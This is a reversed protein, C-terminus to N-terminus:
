IQGRLQRLVPHDATDILRDRFALEIARALTLEPWEPEPLAAHPEEIDYGALGRNSRIRTWSTMAHEAALM